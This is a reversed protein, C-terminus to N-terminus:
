SLKRSPKTSKKHFRKGFNIATQKQMNPLVHAYTEMLTRVDHGLREAVAKPNEGEKLLMTAHTHRLDHFDIKRVGSNKICRYHTRM